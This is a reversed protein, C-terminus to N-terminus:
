AIEMQYACPWKQTYPRVHVSAFKTQFAATPLSKTKLHRNADAPSAAANFPISKRM